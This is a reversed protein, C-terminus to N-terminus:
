LSPDKPLSAPKNIFDNRNQIASNLGNVDIINKYDEASGSTQYSEFYQSYFLKFGFFGTVILIVFCLTLTELWYLDVDFIKPHLSKLPPLNNKKLKLFTFKMKNKELFMLILLVKGVAPPLHM